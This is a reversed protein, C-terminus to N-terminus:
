TSRSRRRSASRPAPASAFTAVYALAADLSERLPTVDDAAQTLLMGGQFASMLAYALHDPDADARLDGRDRMAQLGSRFTDQWRTFGAVIEDHVDLDAKMIESSLSGFSCGNECEDDRQVYSDAWARLAAMSDLAGRPPDERLGLMSDARWAIVARVLSQKDPFYHSLQSGSIGAATRVMENNTGQVGHVYMLNAAVEVIRERQALGKPTLRSVRGTATM